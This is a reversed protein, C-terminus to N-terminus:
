PEGAEEWFRQGQVPYLYRRCDGLGEDFHCADAYDCWQCFNFSGKFYPDAAVNGEAIEGAIDRLVHRIHRELKGLQQASILHDASLKGGQSLHVPLFRYGEEGAHEMAEVVDPDALILGSRTLAKDVLRQREEPSMNRGGSPLVDRAPLYLVGAPSIRATHFCDQGEETLTFLYLLMQLGLGHWVDTLSFSKKGTKYDVVRLYLRGNHVWGDVRDVFGSISLTVGQETLTVPPLEQGPGFGLEFALPEFDSNQLEEAVNLAVQRTDEALRRFLYRFRPTQEAMGGLEERVYRETAEDALKLLEKRALARVGGRAGAEKLMYELVYHVFTGAEPADFGAARRPKARLGYQLFYSFHCSKLRDMRSASLRVTDGYLADVAPRSLSDRHYHRAVTVRDAQEGWGPLETLAALLGSDGQRAAYDLAPAPALPPLIEGAVSGPFLALLRTALWSPRRPVGEESGGSWSVFLRETPLTCGEYAIATERELRRDADAALELDYQELLLRDDDALLGPSQTILPFKSDDAGLLFLVKVRKHALRPLEGVTVRDLSVPISGVSYQSLVLQFLQAFEGRELLEGELLRACQELAACLVDWLQRYEEAQNLEGMNQLERARDALREPLGIDRMLCCLASALEQGTGRSVQRFAELPAAIRRRLADLRSVLARHEETWPLAYGEPHWGWPQDSWWSSGRIKWRLVYNELQDIEEQDVGALGTKLYRFVDDYEYGGTVTDLAATILTLVPKQLIDEMRAQFVPIGYRAFTSELVGQWGELTRASVAIDRFRYGEGAVLRLINGAAWEAEAAPTSAPCLSIAPAPAFLAEEPGDCLRAELWSLEPPIGRDQGCSIVEVLEGARNALGILQRATRRTTEFVPRGDPELTDCTLAVTVTNAGALMRLIVQREQPTFDTFCDLYVDSNEFYPCDKLTDALRTLRDRPDAARQAALADYASLILGLDRLKGGGQEPPIEEGARLLAEPPVCCSKCEDATALLERLFSPKQSPRAFVTLSDAMQRVARHMLLLRGGADLEPLVSGGATSFVRSALRTFSLVEGWASTRSGGLASLTRETDHSHQEPVIIMQRRRPGNACFNQIVAQTKGTHPLGLLLRLM